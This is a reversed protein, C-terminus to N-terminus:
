AKIWKILLVPWLLTAGPILVLRFSIPADKVGADLAAAGKYFFAISFLLGALLYGQFTLVFLTAM